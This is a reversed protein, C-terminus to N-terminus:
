YLRNREHVYLYCSKILVCQRDRDNYFIDVFFLFISLRLMPYPSKNQCALVLMFVDGSIGIFVHINIRVHWHFCSYKKQPVSLLMLIEGSSGIFRLYKKQRASLLM